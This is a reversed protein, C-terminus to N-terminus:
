SGEQMIVHRTINGSWKGKGLSAGSGGFSALLLYVCLTFIIFRETDYSYESEVKHM